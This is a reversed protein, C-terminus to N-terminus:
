KLAHPPRYSANTAQDEAEGLPAGCNLCDDGLLPEGARWVVRHRGLGAVEYEEGCRCHLPRRGPPALDPEATATSRLRRIVTRMVAAVVAITAAAGIALRRM